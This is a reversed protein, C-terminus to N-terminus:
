GNSAENVIRRIFSRMTSPDGPQVLTQALYGMRMLATRDQSSLNQAFAELSDISRCLGIAVAALGKLHNSPSSCSSGLAAQLQAEDTMAGLQEIAPPNGTLQKSWSPPRTAPKPALAAGVVAELLASDPQAELYGLIDNTAAVIEPSLVYWHGNGRAHALAAIGLIRSGRALLEEAGVNQEKEATM